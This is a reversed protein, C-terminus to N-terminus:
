KLKRVKLRGLSGRWVPQLKLVAEQKKFFNEIKKEVRLDAKRGIIELINQNPQM